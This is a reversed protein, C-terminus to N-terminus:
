IIVLTRRSVEERNILLRTGFGGFRSICLSVSGQFSVVDRDGQEVPSDINSEISQGKRQDNSAKAVTFLALSKDPHSYCRGFTSSM